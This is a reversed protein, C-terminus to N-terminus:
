ATATRPHHYTGPGSACKATAYAANKERVVLTKKGDLTVTVDDVRASAILVKKFRPANEVWTDVVDSADADAADAENRLHVVIDRLSKGTFVISEDPDEKPDWVFEAVADLMQLFKDKTM